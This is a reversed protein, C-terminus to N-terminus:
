PCAPEASRAQVRGLYGLDKMETIGASWALAGIEYWQILCGFPKRVNLETRTPNSRKGFLLKGINHFSCRKLAM